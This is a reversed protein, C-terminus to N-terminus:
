QKAEKVVARPQKLQEVDSKVVLTERKDLSNEYTKLVGERVLSWIKTRSVKLIDGAEKLSIYEETMFDGRVM